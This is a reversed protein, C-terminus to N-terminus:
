SSARRAVAVSAFIASLPATMEVRVNPIFSVMLNRDSALLESAALAASFILLRISKCLIDTVKIDAYRLLYVAVVRGPYCALSIM